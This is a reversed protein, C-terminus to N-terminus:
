KPVATETPECTTDAEPRHEVDPHGLLTVDRRFGRLAEVTEAAEHASAYALRVRERPVRAQLEAEREHYMRESLWRPGERNWCDRPPCAIVLVGGMGGRVLLEIVSTHLNGACSVEYVAAGEARLRNPHAGAGHTCAIVVIEGVRRAEDALFAQVQAIQDRGTRGPPGVGMPACSGACIGCSVCLDPDVHAVVPSRRGTRPQMEIAGYPCDLSCQTCGTCIDEDVTSPAPQSVGRRRTFLPVAVLAMSVLGAVSLATRDGFRLAIPMWWAFFLDSPITAPRVFADAEPVMRLPWVLAVATLLGITTWMLPRPPLIAPRPLRKVHLWFVVGMALPVGIHAFLTIFFFVSQVPREGSFTRSIPESLVPLADVLRAGERALHQGFTDWVLVYGTWACAVLLALLAVGSFWALARAGWSRTEAFMRAIHALTALVAADASYRHLGRVWNGIWLNDTLGAVSEWPSGVRYFLVLWLGTVVMTVYLSVVITGSQYLPNYRWSFWRNAAADARNLLALTFSEVARFFTM